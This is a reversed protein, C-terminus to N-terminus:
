RQAEELEREMPPKPKPKPKPKLPERDGSSGEDGPRGEEWTWTYTTGTM